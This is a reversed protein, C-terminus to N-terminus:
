REFRGSVPGRDGGSCGCHGVRAEMSSTTWTTPEDHHERRSHARDHNTWQGVATGSRNVDNVITSFTTNARRRIEQGFGDVTVFARSSGGARNGFDGRESRSNESLRSPLLHSIPSGRGHRTRGSAVGEAGDDVNVLTRGADNLDAATLTATAPFPGTLLAEGLFRLASADGAGWVDASVLLNSTLLATAPVGAAAPFLWPKPRM